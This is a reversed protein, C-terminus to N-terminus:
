HFAIWFTTGQNEQSELWIRWHNIEVIRKVGALGLGSGQYHHGPHLRSYPKFITEFYQEEIGIGNDKVFICGDKQSIEVKVGHGSYKLANEVLNQFLIILQAEDGVITPLQGISIAAEKERIKEELNMIVHGVIRNLSLKEFIRERDIRSYGMLAKVLASLRQQASQINDILLRADESADKFYDEELLSLYSSITRLPEQLDHATMFVFQRLTEDRKILSENLTDIGDNLANMEIISSELRPVKALPYQTFGESLTKIPDVLQRLRRRIFQQLLMVLTLLGALVGTARLISDFFQPAKEKIDITWGLRNLHGSLVVYTGGLRQQILSYDHAEKDQIFQETYFPWRWREDSIPMSSALVRKNYSFTIEHRNDKMSQLLLELDLRYLIVYHCKTCDKPRIYMMISGSRDDVIPESIAYDSAEDLHYTWEPLLSGIPMANTPETSVIRGESDLLLLAAIAPNAEIVTQIHPSIVKEGHAPEHIRSIIYFLKEVARLEMLIQGEIAKSVLHMNHAREKITVRSFDHLMLAFAMISVILLPLLINRNLFTMITLASKTSGMKGSLYAHWKSRYIIHILSAIINGKIPSM